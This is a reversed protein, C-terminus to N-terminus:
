TVSPTVLAERGLPMDGDSKANSFASSNSVSRSALPVSPLRIVRVALFVVPFFTDLRGEFFRTLFALDQARHNRGNVAMRKNPAM